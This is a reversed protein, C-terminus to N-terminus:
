AADDLDVHAQGPDQSQMCSFDSGQTVDIRLLGGPHCRMSAGVPSIGATPSAHPQLFTSDLGSAFSIHAQSQCITRRSGQLSRNRTKGPCKLLTVFYLRRTGLRRAQATHSEQNVLPERSRTAQGPLGTQAPDEGRFDRTSLVGPRPQSAVNQAPRCSLDADAPPHLRFRMSPPTWLGLRDLFQSGIM